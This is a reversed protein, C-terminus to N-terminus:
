LVFIKYRREGRRDEERKGYRGEKSKSERKGRTPNKLLSRVLYSLSFKKRRTRFASTVPM